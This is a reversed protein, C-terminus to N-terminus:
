YFFFNICIDDYLYDKFYCISNFYKLYQQGM